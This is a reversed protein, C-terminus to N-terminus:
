YRTSSKYIDLHFGPQERQYEVHIVSDKVIQCDDEQHQQSEKGVTQDDLIHLDWCSGREGKIRKRSTNLEHLPPREQSPQRRSAWDVIRTASFRASAGTRHNHTQYVVEVADSQSSESVLLHFSNGVNVLPLSAFLPEKPRTDIVEEYISGDHEIHGPMVYVRGAM